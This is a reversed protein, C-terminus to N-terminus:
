THEKEKFYSIKAFFVVSFFNWIRSIYDTIFKAGELNEHNSRGNSESLSKM